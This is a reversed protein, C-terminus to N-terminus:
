SENNLIFSIKNINSITHQPNPDTIFSVCKDLKIDTKESYRKLMEELADIVLYKKSQTPSHFDILLKSAKIDLSDALSYAIETREEADNSGILQEVQDKINNSGCSSFILVVSYIFSITILKKKKM